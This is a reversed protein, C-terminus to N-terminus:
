SASTRKTADVASLMIKATGLAPALVPDDPSPAIM